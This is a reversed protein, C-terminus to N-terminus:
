ERHYLCQHRKSAHVKEGGGGDDGLEPIQPAKRMWLVEHSIETQDGALVGAPWLLM